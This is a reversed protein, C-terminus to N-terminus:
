YSIPIIYITNKNKDINNLYRLYTYVEPSEDRDAAQDCGMNDVPAVVDKRMKRINELTQNWSPPNWTSNPIEEDTDSKVSLHKRKKVVPVSNTGKNSNIKDSLSRKDRLSRSM